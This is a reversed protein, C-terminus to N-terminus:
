RILRQYISARILNSQVADLLPSHTRVKIITEQIVKYINEDARFGITKSNAQGESAIDILNIYDDLAVFTLIAECMWKSKGRLGYEDLVVRECLQQNLKEPIKVTILTKNSM